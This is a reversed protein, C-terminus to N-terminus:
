LLNYTGTKFDEKEAYKEKGLLLGIEKQSIAKWENLNPGGGRRKKRKHSCRCCISTGLSPTSNSSCSCAQVVAIAVGSGLQMQSRHQLKWSHWIRLGSLSSLSQVWMRVSMINPEWGASGHCASWQSYDKKKKKKLNNKNSYLQSVTNHWNRSYLM